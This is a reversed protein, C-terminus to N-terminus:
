MEFDAQTKGGLGGRSGEFRGLLVQQMREAMAVPNRANLFCPPMDLGCAAAAARLIEATRDITADDFQDVLSANNPRMMLQSALVLSDVFASLDNDRAPDYLSALEHLPLSRFNTDKM